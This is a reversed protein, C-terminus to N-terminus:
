CLDPRHQRAGYPSKVKVVGPQASVGKVVDNVAARFEPDRATTGSNKSAQVLVTEGARDPYANDVIRDATASDGHNSGDDSPHVTGVASGAFLAIAVFALWGAIAM